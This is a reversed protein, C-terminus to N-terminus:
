EENSNLLEEKYAKYLDPNAQMAKAFAAEKTISGKVVLESAAKNLAELATGTATGNHNKGLDVFLSSKELLENTAKLVGELKTALDKDTDNVSKLIAGLEEATTPISKFIAAKDVFAKKINEEQMAKAVAASAAVSEQMAKYAKQIPEPMSKFLEAEKEADSKAVNQTLDAIKDTLSKVLKKASANGKADALEKNEDSGGDILDELATPPVKAKEIEAKIATQTAEPLTKLLEEFEMVKGGKDDISKYLMIHADPNAGRKCLAVATIKLGKLNTPM